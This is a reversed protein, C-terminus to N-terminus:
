FIGNTAMELVMSCMIDLQRGQGQRDPGLVAPRLFPSAENRLPERRLLPVKVQQQDRQAVGGRHGLTGGAGRNGRGGQRVREGQQTGRPLSRRRPQRTKTLSCM